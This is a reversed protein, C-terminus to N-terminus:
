IVEVMVIGPSPLSGCDYYKYAALIPGESFNGPIIIEKFNQRKNTEQFSAGFLLKELGLYGQKEDIKAVIIGDSLVINLQNGCSKLFEVYREPIRLTGIIKISDKKKFITIM